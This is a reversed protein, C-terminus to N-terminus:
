IKFPLHEGNYYRMDSFFLGGAIGALCVLLAFFLLAKKKSGRFLLIITWIAVFASPLGFAVAGFVATFAAAGFAILEWPTPTVPGHDPEPKLVRARVSVPTPAPEAIVATAAAVSEATRPKPNLIDVQRCGYSSCGYNEEWCETHFHMACEPCTTMQEEPHISSHCVACRALRKGTSIKAVPEAVATSRGPASPPAVPAATEVAKREVVTREVTTHARPVVVPSKCHKCLGRKGTLDIAVWLPAKCNECDFLIGSTKVVGDPPSLEVELADPPLIGTTRYSIDVTGVRIQDGDQLDHRYIQKGNVFTGSKSGADTLTWVTQDGNPSLWAHLRSVTPDGLVIGHSLRRGILVRQKLQGAYPTNDSIFTVFPM